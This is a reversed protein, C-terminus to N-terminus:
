VKPKKLLNPDFTFEKPGMFNCYLMKAAARYQKSQGNVSRYWINNLWNWLAGTPKQKEEPDLTCVGDTWQVLQNVKCITVRERNSAKGLHVPLTAFFIITKKTWRQNILKPCSCMNRYTNM